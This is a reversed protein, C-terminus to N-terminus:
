ANELKLILDALRATEWELTSVKEAGRKAYPRNRAKNLANLESKLTARLAGIIRSRESEDLTFTKPNVLIM